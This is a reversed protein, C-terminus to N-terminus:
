GKFATTLIISSLFATSKVIESKNFETITSKCEKQKQRVIEYKQFLLTRILFSPLKSSSASSSDLNFNEICPILGQLLNKKIIDNESYAVMEILKAFHLLTTETDGLHMATCEPDAKSIEQLIPIDEVNFEKWLDNEFEASALAYKYLSQELNFVPDNDHEKEDDSSIMNEVNILDEQLEDQSYDLPLFGQSSQSSN